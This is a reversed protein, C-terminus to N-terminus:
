LSVQENDGIDNAPQGTAVAKVYGIAYAVASAPSDWYEARDVSVRILRIQPDDPGDPFWAKLPEQWLDRIKGRDNLVAAMGAMTVYTQDDPNSFAVGAHPNTKLREVKDSDAQTFFWLDGDFETAQIAMPRSWPAGDADITTLMGIRIDHILARLKAIAADRSLPTDSM